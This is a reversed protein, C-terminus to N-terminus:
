KKYGCKENHCYVSEKGKKRLLLGGCDPCKEELPIDWTSFKCDPYGECSYFVTRKRGHKIVIKSGCLPCKVNTDKAIAKTTKCEPYNECAYFSGFRGKKIVMRKGCKECKMDDPAYKVEEPAAKEESKVLNGDSDIPKTNKCEPYNPCAAFKGFRGNKIVMRSGCKECIIDTEKAAVKYNGKEIEKEAKDLDKAFKEYFRALVDNMNREGSEVEDLADEMRATFDYDVIDDFNDQMLQTTVEGLSTPIFNKGEREVYGRSIITTIIAAWTSPRGIGKEELLKVLSAETFRAPPQTFHQTPSLELLKLVDGQTMPPLGAEKETEDEDDTKEEYLAMFGPFKVTYGNARFIYGASEIEASVTDLVASEMQSSVFRDWILKYIRYQDPSLSGKIMDPELKMDTPRIAEHADQVNKKTKYVRPAKPCYQEGFKETIYLKAADAATESIRLSDTRMYTILGHTGLSGLNIGEYLEQAIRMTRESHYGMRRNAEQQLTSTTFPPAPNKLRKSKKISKVSFPAGITADRVIKADSECKLEMKGKETGYFSAKFSKKEGTELNADITWYEEPNFQKIENEREVIIKTVVSQVRGASLGSKIKKWLVPSLKYGVIRDLIRRAQQSNVLNMDIKRPNKIGEKVVPKTVANFTVRKAKEPSLELANMLHWAIAEGERDPDTALYVTDANKAEKKLDAILPGKGRINIYKPQFNNEIDVGLTSKPLDRIHGISAVVKYGKGLYSKITGGKSPSEVIVLHAM